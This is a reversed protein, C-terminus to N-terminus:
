RGCVVGTHLHNWLHALLVLGNEDDPLSYFTYGEVTQLKAHSLGVQLISELDLDLYSFQRHLEYSVGQSSFGIHRYHTEDNLQYDNELLLEKTKEFQEPSVLFGIDGMSRRLPAPYLMAASAGKLIVYSIGNETLLRHLQDQADWYRIQQALQQYEAKKWETLAETSIGEPLATAALGVVAQQQAEHLVSHWGIELPMEECIGFLSQKILSLLAQETQTM